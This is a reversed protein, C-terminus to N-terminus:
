EIPSIKHTKRLSVSYTIRSFGAGMVNIVTSISWLINYSSSLYSFMNAGVMFSVIAFSLFVDIAAGLDKWFEINHTNKPALKYFLFALFCVPYDAKKNLLILILRYLNFLFDIIGLSISMYAFINYNFTLLIDGLIAKYAVFPFGITIIAFIEFYKKNM